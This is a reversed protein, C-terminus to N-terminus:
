PKTNLHILNHCIMDSMAELLKIMEEIEQDPYPRENNKNLIGKADNITM